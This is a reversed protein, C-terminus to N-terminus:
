LLAIGNVYGLQGVPKQIFFIWSSLQVEEISLQLIISKIMSIKNNIFWLKM